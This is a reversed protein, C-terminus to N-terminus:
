NLCRGDDLSLVHLTCFLSEVGDRLMDVAPWVFRCLAGWLWRCPASSLLLAWMIPNILLTSTGHWLGTISRRQRTRKGWTVSIFYTDGSLSVPQRRRRSVCHSFSLFFFDNVAPIGRKNRIMYYHRSFYPGLHFGLNWLPKLSSESTSVVWRGDSNLHSYQFVEASCHRVVECVWAKVM